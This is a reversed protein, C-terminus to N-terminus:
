KAQAVIGVSSAGLCTFGAPLASGKDVAEKVIDLCKAQLVGPNNNVSKALDANAKAQALATQDAQEAIKTAAIQNQISQIKAQTSSDFRVVPISISRVLVLGGAQANMDNVVRQAIDAFAPATSVGNKDIALADYDEMEAALSTNLDRTVLSDRVKDFGRYFQYVRGGQKEVINWRISTDVCATAQHAIRITICNLNEQGDSSKGHPVHNDTQIAGDLTKVQQWPWKLHFGNDLSGTPRQLTLLVGIDKTGVVTFSSALLVILALAALAASGVKMGWRYDYQVVMGGEPDPIRRGYEDRKTAPVEHRALGRFAFVLAALILLVIVAITAGM